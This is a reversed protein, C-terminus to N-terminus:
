RLAWRCRRNPTPVPPPHTPTPPFPRPPPLPLMPAPAQDILAQAFGSLDWEEGDLYRNLLASSPPARPSKISHTRRRKTAEGVAPAGRLGHFDIDSLDFFEFDVNLESFDSGEDDEDKAPRQPAEEEDEEEEADDDPGSVIDESGSDEAGQKRSGQQGSGQKKPATRAQAASKRKM